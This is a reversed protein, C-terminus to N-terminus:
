NQRPQQPTRTYTLYDLMRVWMANPHMGSGPPRYGVWRNPDLLRTRIARIVAELIGSGEQGQMHNLESDDLVEITVEQQRRPGPQQGQHPSYSRDGTRGPQHNPPLRSTVRTLQLNMRRMQERVGQLEYKLKTIDRRHHGNEVQLLRIQQGASVEGRRNRRDYTTM